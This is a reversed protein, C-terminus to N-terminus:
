RDRDRDVALAQKVVGAGREYNVEYPRGIVPANAFLNRDHRVIAGNQELQYVNRADSHLVQGDFRQPQAIRTPDIAENLRYSGKPLTASAQVKVTQWQGHADALDVM